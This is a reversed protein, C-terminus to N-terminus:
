VVFLSFKMDPKYGLVKLHVKAMGKNLKAEPMVENKAYKVNKWEAPLAPKYKGKSDSINWFKFAGEENGEILDFVKTDIPLPSFHLAIDVEGSEPMWFEKGLELDTEDAEVAQGNLAPYIKGNEDRLVTEEVFKIWYKPFYQKHLHLVTEDETFVVKKITFGRSASENMVVNPKEWVVKKEGAM